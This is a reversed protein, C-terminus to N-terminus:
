AKPRYRELHRVQGCIQCSAAPLPPDNRLNYDDLSSLHPDLSQLVQIQENGDLDAITRALKLMRHYNMQRM